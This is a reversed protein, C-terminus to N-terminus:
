STRARKVQYMSQDAYGLLQEPDVDPDESRAVGVSAGIHIVTGAIVLPVAVADTIRRAVSDVESAPLQECVAVFEDGGLRAVTDVDRVARRVRQATEALVRDGISHGHEDNVAKFRDLDVFFLTLSDSGRRLRGCAQRLRDELLLRNPLGTLADHTAQHALQGEVRRRDTVDEVTALWGTHHGDAGLPVFKAHAWRQYLGTAIRFTVQQAVGSRVTEGAATVVDGRDEPLVTDEWGSGVLQERPLNFIQEAVDNTFVVFGRADASLIGLPLAEALSVFREDRIQELEEAAIEDTVDRARVVAGKLSPDILAGDFVDADFLRWSGNKTMVRARTRERFGANERAREIIGFVTLLDDPHIREAIHAGENEEASYGLAPYSTASLVEGRPSVLLLFETAAQFLLQRM